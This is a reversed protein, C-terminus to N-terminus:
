ACRQIEDRYLRAWGLIVDVVRACALVERVCAVEFRGAHEASTATAIADRLRALQAPPYSVYTTHYSWSTSRLGAAGFARRAVIVDVKPLRVYLDKALRMRESRLRKHEAVRRLIEDLLWQHDPSPLANM